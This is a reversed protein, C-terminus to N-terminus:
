FKLQGFLGIENYSGGNLITTGGITGNSDSITGDSVRDHKYVLALDVIKVPEWQVGVNYYQNRTKPGIATSAISIKYDPRVWDYRAFVSWKPIVNVSGFVSYGDSRTQGANTVAVLSNNTFNKAHFYEGGITFRSNKYGAIADLRAATHFTVPTPSGTARQTDNGLKGTYGGVAGFFGKYAASVRGEFDVSKTVVANKGDTPSDFVIVEIKTDVPAFKEYFYPPMSHVLRLTGMKVTKGEARVIAPAALMSAAFGASALLRRRQIM